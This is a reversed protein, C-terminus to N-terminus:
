KLRDRDRTITFHRQAAAIIADMPWEDSPLKINGQGTEFVVYVRGQDHNPLFTDRVVRVEGWGIRRPKRPWVLYEIGHSDVFLRDHLLRRWHRRTLAVAIPLSLAFWVGILWSAAWSAPSSGFMAQLPKAFLYLVVGGPVAGAILWFMAIGWYRFLSMAVDMYRLFRDDLEPHHFEVRDPAPM